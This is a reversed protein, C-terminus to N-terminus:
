IGFLSRYDIPTKRNRATTMLGTGLNSLNSSLNTYFQDRDQVNAIDARERGQMVMQDRQNQLQSRNQMSQDLADLYNRNLQTQSRMTNAANLQRSSRATNVSNFSQSDAGAQALRLDQLGQTRASSLNRMSRANTALGQRGFDEYFSENQKDGLRNIITTALPGLMGIAAGAPGMAPGLARAINGVTQGFGPRQTQEQPAYPVANMAYNMNKEGTKDLYKQFTNVVPTPQANTIYPDQFPGYVNDQISQFLPNFAQPIGAPGTGAAYVMGGDEWTKRAYARFAKARSDNGKLNKEHRAYFAEKRKESKHQRFDQMSSDGFDFAKGDMWVRLKKGKRPSKQITGDPKVEGGDAMKVKGGCKMEKEMAKQEQIQMDEIDQIQTQEVVRRLTNEKALDFPNSEVQRYARRVQRERQEHRDAMSKGDRKLRKSYVRTGVPLEMQIGGNEHSPGQAQMTMGNPFELREKGEIEVKRKM